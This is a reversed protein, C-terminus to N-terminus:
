QFFHVTGHGDSCAFWYEMTFILRGVVVVDRAFRIEKVFVCLMNLHAAMKDRLMVSFSFNVVTCMQVLSPAPIDTGIDQAATAEVTKCQLNQPEHDGYDPGSPLIPLHRLGNSYPCNTQKNTSGWLGVGPPYVRVAILLKFELDWRSQPIWVCFVGFTSPLFNCQM